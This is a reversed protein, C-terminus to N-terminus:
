FNLIAFRALTADKIKECGHVCYWKGGHTPKGNRHKQAKWKHRTDSCAHRKPLRNNYKKLLVRALKGFEKAEAIMGRHKADAIALIHDGRANFTSSWVNGRLDICVGAKFVSCKGTFRDCSSRKVMLVGASCLTGKWRDRICM